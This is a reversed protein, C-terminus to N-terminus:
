ADTLMPKVAGHREKQGHATCNSCTSSFLFVYQNEAKFFYLYFMLSRPSLRKVEETTNKFSNGDSTPGLRVSLTLLHPRNAQQFPSFSSTISHCGAGCHHPSTM